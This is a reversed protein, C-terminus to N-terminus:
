NNLRRYAELDKKAAEALLPDADVLKGKIYKDMNRQRSKGPNNSWGPDIGEPVMEIEGTRKNQWEVRRIKPAQTRVPQYTKELRGTPLGTEPDLVQRRDAAPLGNEILKGHEPRSVQRQRCKCGWGSPAFHTDWFPDDVPLLTGHWDVHEPRHERSPGLTRLIYPLDEKTREMRQWQGAAHATRLNANYITKLRRPSGLQVAGTDGTIPDTMISRGWWGKAELIPQLEKQFQRLTKGEAIAQDVADRLDTLVDIETAKAVTFAYSHEELWVDRYDFAPRLGKRRFYDLADVPVPGPGTIKVPTRM